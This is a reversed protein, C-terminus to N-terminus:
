GATPLTDEREGVRLDGTEGSRAARRGLRVVYGLFAAEALLGVGVRAWTPLPSPTVFAEIAGSVLLVLVLGMAIAVASRGEAALADGRRRSGPDIVTWGLRLGTGAAMFVATLELLGHPLLLGFLLGTRSNAIMIGAIVGVNAANSFLIVLTPLGLAVGLVLTGAAVWANNTWVQAAFSGAPNSRYYDAFDHEVLQRIAAPPGVAAQVRPSGAVWGALVGAVLLFGVATAAWWRWTRYTAAPFTVTVFRGVDRWAPTHAGTVTARARAVLSSLRAVLVPDPSASRVVSLHTATRAYLDVLEDAEAGRLRRPRRARRLLAELRDWSARHAAVYADVDM